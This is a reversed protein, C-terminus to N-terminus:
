KASSRRTFDELSEVRKSISGMNTAVEVMSLSLRNLGEDMKDIQGIFRTGFFGTMSVLILVAVRYSVTLVAANAARAMMSHDGNRRHDDDSM